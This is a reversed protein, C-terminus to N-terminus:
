QSLRLIQSSIQLFAKRLNNANATAVVQGKPQSSFNTPLTYASYLATANFQDAGSDNAWRQMLNFDPANVGTANGGLGIVFITAPLTANTRARYAAHDTANLAANHFNTWKSPTTSNRFQLYTTGSTTNNQTTSVNTGSPNPSVLTVSKYNNAPTFNSAPSLDNGFLDTRPLYKFDTMDGATANFRCNNTMSTPYTSNTATTTGNIGMNQSTHWPSALADFSTDSTGNGPDTSYITGIMGPGKTGLIGGFDKSKLADNPTTTVPLYWDKRYSNQGWGPVSSSLKSRTTGNKDYCGNTTTSMTAMMSKNPDTGTTDWFNFALSNPLGDTEILLINYAGPLSKKYLENYGVIIAEATGTGGLCTIQNIAGNSNDTSSVYYGLQTRFDTSPAYVPGVGDSFSVMGIMDRGAAFQGTFLEAADKLDACSDHNGNAASPNMSSSRDLVMMVVVSRRNATGISSILTDDIRFWKMFYTPVRTSATVSITSLSPSPTSVTVTDKSMITSKTSWNGPFFNSYFWNVANQKAADAQDATTAGLNLARAAALSAGDVAAQLRTKSAYLFGIDVTLGVMPIAMVLSSIALLMVVGKENRRKAHAKFTKM